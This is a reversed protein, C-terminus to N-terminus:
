RSHGKGSYMATNTLTLKACVIREDPTMRKRITACRDLVEVVGLSSLEALVNQPGILITEGQRETALRDAFADAEDVRVLPARLYYTIQNEPLDLLYIPQDTPALRNVRIALQTQDNYSDFFPMVESQVMVGILWVTAFLGTLQANHRRMQGLWGTAVVGVAAVGIVLSTVPVIAPRVVYTVGVTAIFLGVVLGALVLLARSGGIRLASLGELGRAALISFPPLLPIVYHKHQWESLSLLLLGSLFWFGLFRYFSSELLRTRERWFGSVVFPTWPLLLLPITYAYFFQPKQGGEMGGTFRAVNHKQWAAVIEPYAHFIAMPWALVCVAFLLWGVPSVLFKWSRRGDPYILFLVVPGFIFLPGIPGKALFSLGAALFFTWQLWRRGRPRLSDVTTCTDPRDNAGFSDATTCAEPRDDAGVSAATTCAEPRDSAGYVFATMAGCVAACLIMDSEALRGQMLAYVGTLQVMGALLGVRGGMQRAALQAVMVATLLTALVIPLRVVWEAESGFVKMSIAILWHTLPPKHTSPVGGITPVIWNGSSVMEKAPQAFLTEHFTLVRTGGLNILFLSGGYALLLLVASVSLRASGSTITGGTLMSDSTSDDQCFGM